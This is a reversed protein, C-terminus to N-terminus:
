LAGAAFGDAIARQVLLRDVRRNMGALEEEYFSHRANTRKETRAFLVAMAGLEDPDIWVLWDEPCRDIMISNMGMYGFNAMKKRCKPCHVEGPLDPIRPIPQDLDVHKALSRTLETMLPILRHQSALVGGCGACRHVDVGEYQGADLTHDCRPCQM